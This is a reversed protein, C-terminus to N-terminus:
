PQFFRRRFVESCLKQCYSRRRLAIGRKKVEAVLKRRAKYYRRTGTPYAIAKEQVLTDVRVKDMDQRKILKQRAAAEITEISLRDLM